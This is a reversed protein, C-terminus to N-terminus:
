TPWLMRAADQRLEWLTAEFPVPRAAVLVRYLLMVGIGCALHFAALSGLAAIRLTEWFLAVVLATLLLIATYVVAAAVAATFWLRRRVRLEGDLEAAFLALRVGLTERLTLGLRWM